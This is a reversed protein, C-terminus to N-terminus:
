PLACLMLGPQAVARVGRVTVLTDSDSRRALKLRLVCFSINIHSVAWSSSQYDPIPYQYIRYGLRLEQPWFLCMCRIDTIDEDLFIMSIRMSFSIGRSGSGGRPGHPRCWATCMGRWPRPVVPVPPSAAPTARPPLFSPRAVACPRPASSTQSWFDWFRETSKLLFPDSTVPHRM